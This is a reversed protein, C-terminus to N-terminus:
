RNERLVKTLGKFDGKGNSLPKGNAALVLKEGRLKSAPYGLVLFQEDTTPMRTKSETENIIAAFMGMKTFAVFTVLTDSTHILTKVNNEVCLNIVNRTGIVYFLAFFM